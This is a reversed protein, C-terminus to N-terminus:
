LPTEWCKQKTKKRFVCVNLHDENYLKCMGRQVLKAHSGTGAYHSFHLYDNFKNWKQLGSSEIFEMLESSSMESSILADVILHWSRLNDLLKSNRFPSVASLPSGSAFRTHEQLSILAATLIEAAVGHTQTPRMIHQQILSRCIINNHTKHKTLLIYLFLMLM